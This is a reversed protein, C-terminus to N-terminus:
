CYCHCMCVTVDGDVMAMRMRMLHLLLSVSYNYSNDGCVAMTTQKMMTIGKLTVNDALMVLEDMVAEADESETMLMTVDGVSLARLFHAQVM